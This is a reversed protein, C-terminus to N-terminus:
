LEIKLFSEFSRTADYNQFTNKAYLISIMKKTLNIYIYINLTYKSFFVNSRDANVKELAHLFTKGRGEIRSKEFLPCKKLM